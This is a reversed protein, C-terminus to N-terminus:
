FTISLGGSFGVGQSNWDVEDNWDDEVGDLTYKTPNAYMDVLLNGFVAIEPTLLVDLGARGTFGIMNAKLETSASDITLTNMSYGVSAGLNLAFRNFYVRYGVGGTIITQSMSFADNLDEGEITEFSPMTFRGGLEFYLESVNVVPGLDYAMTVNISPHIGKLLEIGEKFKLPTMGFAARFEIGLKGDEKAQDGEEASGLLIQAESRTDDIKRVKGFSKMKMKGDATYTYTKYRHDMKIGSDKGFDFGFRGGGIMTVVASITFEPTNRLDKKIIEFLGAVSSRFNTQKEKEETSLDKLDSNDTSFGSLGSMLAGLVNTKNNATLTHIKEKTATSYIDFHMAMTYTYETYKEEKGLLNKKTKEKTQVEISDIYPVAAYSNAIAKKLDDVTVMAEKYKGDVEVRKSAIDRLNAKIFADANNLFDSIAGKNVEFFDVRQFDKVFMQYMQKEVFVERGKDMEGTAAQGYQVPFIFLSKREYKTLEQAFVSGLGIVLALVLVVMKKM